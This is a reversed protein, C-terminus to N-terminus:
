PKSEARGEAGRSDTLKANSLMAVNESWTLIAGLFAGSLLLFGSLPIWLSLWWLLGSLSIPESTQLPTGFVAFQTLFCLSLQATIQMWRLLRKLKSQMAIESSSPSAKRQAASGQARRPISGHDSSMLTQKGPRHMLLDVPMNPASSHRQMKSDPM